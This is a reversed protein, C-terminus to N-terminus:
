PHFWKVFGTGPVVTAIDRLRLVDGQACTLSLNEIDQRFILRQEPVILQIDYYKSGNHYRTAVAGTILSRLSNAVDSVSVGLEAAKVRDVRVQYEPKTMDM